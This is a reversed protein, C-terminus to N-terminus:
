LIIQIARPNQNTVVLTNEYRLSSRFHRSCHPKVTESNHSNVTRATTYNKDDKEKDVSFIIIKYFFYFMNDTGGYGTFRWLTQLFERAPSFGRSCRPNESIQEETRGFM